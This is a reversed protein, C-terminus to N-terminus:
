FKGLYFDYKESYIVSYTSPSVTFTLAKVALLKPM